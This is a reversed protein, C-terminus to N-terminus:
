GGTGALIEVVADSVVTRLADPRFGPDQAAARIRSAIEAARREAPFSSTGRVRFLVVGDVRVPATLEERESEVTPPTRSAQREAASATASWALGASLLLIGLTRVSRM